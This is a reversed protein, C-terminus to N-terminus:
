WIEVMLEEEMKLFKSEFNASSAIKSRLFSTFNHNPPSIEM